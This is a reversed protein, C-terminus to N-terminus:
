YVGKTLECYAKAIDIDLEPEEEKSGNEGQRTNISQMVGSLSNSRGHHSVRQEDASM